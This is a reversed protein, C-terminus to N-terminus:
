SPGMKARRWKVAPNSSSYIGGRVRAPAHPGPAAALLFLVSFVQRFLSSVRKAQIFVAICGDFPKACFFGGSLQCKGAASRASFRRQM